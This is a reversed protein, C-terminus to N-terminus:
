SAPVEAGHPPPDAAAPNQISGPEAAPLTETRDGKRATFSFKKRLSLIPKEIVHWSFCAVATVLPLTIAFHAWPSTVGPLVASIAQQLPYGYLYIGYSYDGRSYFPVKPLRSVGLFITLYVVAPSLFMCITGGLVNPLAISAGLLVVVCGAAIRGSFPIRERFLYALCGLMFYIYLMVGQRSVYHNVVNYIAKGASSARLGDLPDFKAVFCGVIYVTLVCCIILATRRHKLFGTAIFFSILCYCGIEFPVTWLSGNVTQPAPNHLFLGPLFLHVLGLINGFYARFEFAGFYQSLPYQTLLPGLILASVVIDVSLAPVIRMGRNLLFDHLKLRLASGTILFGSLAFFMPVLIDHIVTLVPYDFQHREGQALLFSHTFLIFIALAIRMFDFGPGIGRNEGLVAGITKM